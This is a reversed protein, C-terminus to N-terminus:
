TSVKIQGNMLMPLLYDRLESLTHNELQIQSSEEFAQDATKNFMIGLDIPPIVIKHKKFADKQLHKLGSGAFFSLNLYKRISDIYLYLYNSYNGATICWTDTSYAADGIYYKVDANGGTNLYCNPGSIFAKDYMIIEEGSTFFPIKGRHNGAEGVQVASKDREKLISEITDVTWGDPIERILEENWVMKGGNTKYPKGSSDPFDFQVFWYSYLLKVISEINDSISQNNEIREDLAILVNAIADQSSKDPLPIDINEFDRKNLIPTRTVNAIQFLYSKKGKLWYYIYYPNVKNKFATISNIQQNTACKQNVLAVNGMDWGICGVLVSIGDLSNTRIYNLGAEAIHKESDKILYNCHLESPSIFMYRNGYYESIATPPTKGTIVTGLEKILM